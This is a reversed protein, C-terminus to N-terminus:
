VNVLKKSFCKTKRAGEVRSPVKGRDLLSTLSTRPVCRPELAARPAFCMGRCKYARCSRSAITNASHLDRTFLHFPRKQERSEDGKKKRHHSFLICTVAIRINRNM